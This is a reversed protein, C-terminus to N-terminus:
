GYTGDKLYVDATSIHPDSLSVQIFITAMDKSLVRLHVATFNLTPQTPSKDFETQHEVLPRRFQSAIM